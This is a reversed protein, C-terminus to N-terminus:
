IILQYFSKNSVSMFTILSRIIKQLMNFLMEDFTIEMELPFHILNHFMNRKIKKKKQPPKFFSFFVDNTLAVHDITLHQSWNFHVIVNDLNTECKV